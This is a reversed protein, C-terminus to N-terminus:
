AVNKAKKINKILLIIGLVSIIIGIIDFWIPQFTRESYATNFGKIPIVERYKLAIVSM